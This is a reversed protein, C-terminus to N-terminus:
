NGMERNGYIVELTYKMTAAKAKIWKDYAQDAQWPLDIDGHSGFNHFLGWLLSAAMFVLPIMFWM